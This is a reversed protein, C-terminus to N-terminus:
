EDEVVALEKGKRFIVLKYEGTETSIRIVQNKCLIIRIEKRM